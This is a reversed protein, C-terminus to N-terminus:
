FANITFDGTQQKIGQAFITNRASTITTGESNTPSDTVKFERQGVYFTKPPVRFLLYIEGDEVYLPDTAGDAKIDWNTGQNTLFGNNDFEDNLEEVTTNNKLYIQYCNETVDIGDFFAYVRSNNKLGTARIVFERERM